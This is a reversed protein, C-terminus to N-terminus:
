RTMGLTGRGSGTREVVVSRGDQGNRILRKLLAVTMNRVNEGHDRRALRVVGVMNTLRPLVVSFAGNFGVSASLSHETAQLPQRYHRLVNLVTASGVTQSKPPSSSLM